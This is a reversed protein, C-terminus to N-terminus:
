DLKAILLFGTAREEFEGGSQRTNRTPGCNEQYILPGVYGYGAARVTYLQSFCGHGRVEHAWDKGL